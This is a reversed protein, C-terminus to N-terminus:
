EYVFCVHTEQGRMERERGMGIRDSHYRTKAVLLALGPWCTVCAVSAGQLRHAQQGEYLPPPSLRRLAHWLIITLSWPFPTNRSLQLLVTNIYPAMMVTLLALMKRGCLVTFVRNSCRCPFRVCIEAAMVMSAELAEMKQSGGTGAAVLASASKSLTVGVSLRSVGSVGCDCPVDLSAFLIICSMHAFLSSLLAPTLPSSNAAYVVYVVYM